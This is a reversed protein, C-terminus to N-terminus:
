TSRLHATGAHVTCHEPSRVKPTLAKFCGREGSGNGIGLGNPRFPEEGGVMSHEYLTSVWPASDNYRNHILGLLLREPYSPVMPYGPKILIGLELFVLGLGEQFSPGPVEYGGEHVM